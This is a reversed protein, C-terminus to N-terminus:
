LLLIAFVLFSDADAADIGGPAYAQWLSTYVTGQRGALDLVRMNVYYTTGTSLSLGSIQFPSLPASGGALDTWDLINTGGSTTGLSYQYHSIGSGADAANATFSISPSEIISINSADHSLTDSWTPAAGDYLYTQAQMGVIAHTSSCISNGKDDVVEASYVVTSDPAQASATVVATAATVNTVSGVISGSCAAANYLNIIYTSTFNGGGTLTINFSPTADTGPSSVPSNLSVSPATLEITSGSQVLVKIDSNCSSLIFAAGLLSARTLDGMVFNRFLGFIM